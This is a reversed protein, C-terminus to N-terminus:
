DNEEEANLKETCIQRKAEEIKQYEEIIAEAPDYGTWQNRKGDYDIFLESQVFEDPAIRSNTYKTRVKCPREMCDKKHIIAGCNECANKRYKVMVHPLIKAV